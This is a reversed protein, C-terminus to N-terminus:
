QSRPGASDPRHVFLTGEQITQPEAEIVVPDGGLTTFYLPVEVSAALAATPGQLEPPLRLAYIAEASAYVSRDPNTVDDVIFEVGEPVNRERVDTGTVSVGQDALSAAVDTREGIGVEVLRDFAGLVTRLPPSSGPM